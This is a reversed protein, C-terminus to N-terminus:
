EFRFWDFDTAGSFLIYIDHTGSAGTLAATGETWNSWGGTAPTTITGIQTGTLSGLRVTATKTTSEGNTFRFKLQSFGSGLNVGSYKVWSGANLGGITTTYNSVSYSDSFSEAQITVPTPASVSDEFRFWDFDTMGSFKIYIDHTGSAGTLSSTTEVWNSWGGTPPTSISGILTGTLSDLRIEATKASVDGNTFRTRLTAYGSGLNVNSFKVWDGNHLDGIASGFNVIGSMDNYSEAQLTLTSGGGSSTYAATSVASQLMGAKGAIAKVTQPLTVTLPARYIPSNANPTSGDTTYRITAGTTASAITVTPPTGYAGATPTFTPAAVTSQSAAAGANNANYTNHAGTNNVFASTVNATKNGALVTGYSSHTLTVAYQKNRVTNDEVITNTTDGSVTVDNNGDYYGIDAASVYIGTNYSPAETISNGVPTENTGTLDNDRFENGFAQVAYYHGGGNDFRESAVGVGSNKSLPSVGTLVNGKVKNFYNPSLNSENGNKVNVSWIFVGESDLFTNNAVVSDYANGFLWIGKDNDTITNNYATTHENPTILTWKSTNDPMKDWIRDVTITNGSIGTVRRLQGLGTGDIIQIAPYSYMVTPAVLARDASVTVNLGSASSVTGYNFYGSPAESMIAEGDNDHGDVLGSAVSRMGIITNDALYNNARVSLGHKEANVATHGILTNGTAIYYEATNVYVGFSFEMYSNTFSSYQNVYNHAYGAFGRFDSDAVLFREKGLTMMPFGRQGPAGNTGLDYDIKVGKLFMQEATRQLVNGAPYTPNGSGDLVEWPSGLILFIDPRSTHGPAITVTLNAIGVQGFNTKSDIATAGGTGIYQLITGARSQGRLVVKRSLHLSTIRYTGDALYVVGGNPNAGAADIAAQIDATEDVGSNPTAGYSSANVQNAWNFNGAWAVGLGLPDSGAAVVQLQQGSSPKSWHVGGDNTIEVDYTGLPMGSSITFEAMYANSSVITQNVTNSSNKLRVVTGNAAGFESGAFNRGVVTIKQGSWAQKESIWIARAANLKAPASWGTANKVWVNYVGATAGSPMTVTVYNGKRDSQIITPHLADVPPTAPSTNAVDLKIAVDQSTATMDWGTITFTKGAQVADSMRHIKPADAAHVPRVDLAAVLTLLLAMVLLRSLGARLSSRVLSYM